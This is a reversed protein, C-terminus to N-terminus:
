HNLSNIRERLEYRIKNIETREIKIGPAIRADTPFTTVLHAQEHKVKLYPLVMKCLLSAKKGFIRVLYATKRPRELRLATHNHTTAIGVGLRKSLWDLVGKSTMGIQVIPYVTKYRHPGVAMVCICGEGDILGAIYAREEPTLTTIPSPPRQAEIRAKKRRYEAQRREQESAYKKPHAM